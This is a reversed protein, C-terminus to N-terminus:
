AAMAKGSRRRRGSRGGLTAAADDLHTYLIEEEFTLARDCRLISLV